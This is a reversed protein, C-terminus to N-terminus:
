HDLGITDRVIRERPVGWVQNNEGRLILRAKESTFILGSVTNGDGEIVVDGDVINNLLVNRDGHIVISGAHSCSIM